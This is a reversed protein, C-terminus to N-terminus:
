GDHNEKSPAPQAHFKHEGKRALEREMGVPRLRTLSADEDLLAQEAGPPIGLARALKLLQSRYPTFRKNEILSLTTPHIGTKRSLEAQSWGRQRREQAMRIMIKEKGWVRIHTHPSVM